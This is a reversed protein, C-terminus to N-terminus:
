DAGDALDVVSNASNATGLIASITKQWQAFPAETVYITDEDRIIFERAIFVGSPKTLDIVYIMRQTTAIDSRGLVANAVAATEERLVFIGKPDAINSNLGGAQAIAEIAPLRQTEFDVRRQGGTAGLATFARRDEEVLIRDGPRLAIDSAPDAYLDSLWITGRQNGRIVTVQAIEPEISVGGAQALMATLTRTPREIEYVGQGGVQGIVSVTAGDGAERTVLVQPDPTQTELNRTILLRLGEPTNGAAQLRGAYPVFIFGDGDVQVGSLTTRNAGEQALVGEDVNEWIEITLVDGPRITDSGIQGAGEFAAAFGLGPPIETADAIRSDVAVVHADGRRSIDSSLIQGRTPGSRPLGCGALIAIISVLAAAKAWRTSTGRV